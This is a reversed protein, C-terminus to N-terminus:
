KRRFRFYWVEHGMQTRAKNEYRQTEQIAQDVRSRADDPSLGNRTGVIQALYDRDRQATTVELKGTAREANYSTWFAWDESPSPLASGPVSGDPKTM